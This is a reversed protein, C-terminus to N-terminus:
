DDGRRAWCRVDTGATDIEWEDFGASEIWGDLDAPTVNRYWEGPPPDTDGGAAHPARGPGAMTAIFLGGAGLHRYASAVIEKGRPTHELLETSIVVDFTADLDLMAADAVLDVGPGDCIDVSYYCEVKPWLYRTTGNVDRGGLDLVGEASWMEFRDLVSTVWQIVAGHM